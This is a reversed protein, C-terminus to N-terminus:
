ANKVEVAHVRTHLDDVTNNSLKLDCLLKGNHSELELVVKNFKHAEEKLEQTTEM